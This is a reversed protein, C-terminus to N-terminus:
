HQCNSKQKKSKHNRYLVLIHTKSPEDTRNQQQNSVIHYRVVIELHNRNKNTHFVIGNSIHLM